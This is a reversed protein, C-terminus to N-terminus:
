QSYKKERLGAASYILNEAGNKNPADSDFYLVVDAAEKSEKLKYGRTRFFFMRYFTLLQEPFPRRMLPSSIQMRIKFIDHTVHGDFWQKPNGFSKKTLWTVLLGNNTRLSDRTALFKM